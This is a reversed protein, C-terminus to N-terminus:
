KTSLIHNLQRDIDTDTTYTYIHIGPIGGIMASLKDIHKGHYLCIVKKQLDVAKAIIYGVGLSPTTVDAIVIDSERVREMERQYIEEKTFETEGYISLTEDAVHDSVITGYKKLIEVTNTYTPQEIRGGKISATFYIKM